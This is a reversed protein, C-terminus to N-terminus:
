KFFSRLKKKLFLSIIGLVISLAGLYKVFRGPDQNVSLISVTPQGEEDEEYSSQYFTYGNLKLPENMSITQKIGSVEVDSEYTKAKSTGQYQTIKFDLLKLSFNLPQKKHVYGVAYVKKSDYFRVFSNLGLRAENGKYSVRMSPITDKSPKERPSFLFIRKSSPHFQLLRFKFDMWGTNFVEGPRIKKQRSDRLTYFLEENKIYLVFEKSSSPLLKLDRTLVIRAPGLSKTVTKEKKSLEMWEVFKGRSGELYFRVSSLIGKQSREYDQRPLGYPM